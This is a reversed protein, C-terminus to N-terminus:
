KNKLVSINEQMEMVRGKMMTMESDTMMGSEMIDSMNTMESCIQKMMNSLDNINEKSAERETASLKGIMRSIDNMMNSMDYVMDKMNNMMEGHGVMMEQNTTVNEKELIGDKNIFNKEDAMHSRQIEDDIEKRMDHGMQACANGGFLGAILLGALLFYKM